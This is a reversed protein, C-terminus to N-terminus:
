FKKFVNKNLCTEMSAVLSSYASNIGLFYHAGYYVCKIHIKEPFKVMKGQYNGFCLKFFILIHYDILYSERLTYLFLSNNRECLLPYKYM